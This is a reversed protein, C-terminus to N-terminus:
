ASPKFTAFHLPPGQFDCAEMRVALLLASVLPEIMFDPFLPAFTALPLFENEAARNRLSARDRGRTVIASKAPESAACVVPSPVM